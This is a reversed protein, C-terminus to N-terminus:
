VASDYSPVSLIDGIIEHMIAFGRAITARAGLAASIREAPAAGRHAHTRIVVARGSATAHLALSPTCPSVVKGPKPTCARLQELSEVGEDKLTEEKTADPLVKKFSQLFNDVSIAIPRDTRDTARAGALAVVLAARKLM